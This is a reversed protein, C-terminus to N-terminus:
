AGSLWRKGAKALAWVGKAKGAMWGLSAKGQAKTTTMTM